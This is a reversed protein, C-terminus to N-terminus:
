YVFIPLDWSLGINKSNPVQEGRNVASVLQPVTKIVYNNIERLTIKRDYNRDAAGNFGDLLAKTFAGHQWNDHEHSPQDASSSTMVFLGNQKKSLADITANIAQQEIDGKLGEGSYCADVFLLKKCNLQELKYMLNEFDYSTANWSLSQYDTGKIIFTNEGRYKKISGHSSIFVLIVDRENITESLDLRNIASEINVSTANAGVLSQAFIQDFTKSKQRKFLDVVSQADEDTYKLRSVDQSAQYDPGITVIHLNPKKASYNVKISESKHGNLEVYIENIGENLIVTTSFTSGRFRVEGSKNNQNWGNLYVHLDDTNYVSGLIRIELPFVFNDTFLNNQYDPNPKIWSFYRSGSIIEKEKQINEKVVKKRVYKDKQNSDTMLRFEDLIEADTRVNQLLTNSGKISIKENSNTLSRVESILEIERIMMKVEDDYPEFQLYKRFDKLALVIKSKQKYIVGRNKIAIAYNPKINIAACFDELAKDFRGISKYAIGRNNYAKFHYSKLEIAKTYFEIKQDIDTASLGSEFYDEASQALITLNAAFVSFLFFCLRILRRNFVLLKM